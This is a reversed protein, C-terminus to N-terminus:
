GDEPRWQWWSLRKPVPWDRIHQYERQSLEVFRHHTYDRDGACRGWLGIRASPVRDFNVTVTTIGCRTCLRYRRERLVDNLMHKQNELRFLDKTRKTLEPGDARNIAGFRTFSFQSGPGFVSARSM